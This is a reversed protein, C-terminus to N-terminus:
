GKYKRTDLNQVLRSLGNGDNKFESVGLPIRTVFRDTKEFQRSLLSPPSTTGGVGQAMQSRETYNPSDAGIFNTVGIPQKVVFKDSTLVDKAILSAPATSTGIGQALTSLNLGDDKFESVGIPAKVVFKDTKEFDKSKLSAPATSTGATKADYAGGEPQTDYRKELDIALSPRTDEAM